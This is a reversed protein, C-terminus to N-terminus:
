AAAEERYNINTIKDRYWAKCNYKQNYYHHNYMYNMAERFGIDNAKEIFMPIKGTFFFWEGRAHEAAFMDHLAKEDLTPDPSWYEVVLRM